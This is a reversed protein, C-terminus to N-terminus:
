RYLLVPIRVTQIVATTISGIILNRISHGYPGMVLLDFGKASVVDKLVEVPDGTATPSTAHLGADQLRATAADATAKAKAADQGICLVTM